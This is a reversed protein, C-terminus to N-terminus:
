DLKNLQQDARSCRGKWAEIWGGRSWLGRRVASESCLSGTGGLRGDKEAASSV